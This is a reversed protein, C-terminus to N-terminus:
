CGLVCALSLVGGVVTPLVFPQSTGVANVASVAVSYSQGDVLGSVVLPSVSGAATLTAAGNGAYPTVVVVYGSIAQEVACCVLVLM